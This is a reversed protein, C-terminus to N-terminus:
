IAAEKKILCTIENLIHEESTYFVLSNGESWYDRFEAILFGKAYFRGFISKSEMCGKLSESIKTEDKLFLLTGYQLISVARVDLCSLEMYNYRINDCLYIDRGKEFVPINQFKHRIGWYKEIATFGTEKEECGFFYVKVQMKEIISSVISNYVEISKRKFLDINHAIWAFDERNNAGISFCVSDIGRVIDIQRNLEKEYYEKM